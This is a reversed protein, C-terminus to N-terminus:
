MELCLDLMLKHFIHRISDISRVWSPLHMFSWMYATAAGTEALRTIMRRSPCNFFYDGELAAAAYGYRLL